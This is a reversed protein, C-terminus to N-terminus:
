NIQANGDAIEIGNGDNGSILNREAAALGGIQVPTARAGLSEAAGASGSGSPSDATGHRSPGAAPLSPSFVREIAIGDGGDSGSGSIVNSAVNSSGSALVIGSGHFNNVVLGRITSQSAGVVFGSTTGANSGDVEIPPTSGAGPQTTGDITVPETIRPLGSLL